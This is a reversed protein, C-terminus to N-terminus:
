RLLSAFIPMPCFPAFLVKQKKQGIGIKAEQKAIKLVRRAPAITAVEIWQAGSEPFLEARAEVFDANGRGEARELRRSLTLDSFPIPEENTNM